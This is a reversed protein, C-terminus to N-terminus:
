KCSTAFTSWTGEVTRGLFAGPSGASDSYILYRVVDIGSFGDIRGYASMSYVNVNDEALSFQCLIIENLELQNLASFGPSTFGVTGSLSQVTNAETLSDYTIDATQMEIFSSHTGVDASGDVDSQGDLTDEKVGGGSVQLLVADINWTDQIADSTTFSGGFKITYTSSTLSVTFNNWQNATLDSTISTWSSGSWYTVNIDESGSFIGTKICLEETALFDVVNTFEVELDMQYGSSSPVGSWVGGISCSRTALGTWGVTLDGAPAGIYDAIAAGQSTVTPDIVDERNTIGGTVSTMATLGGTCGVAVILANDENTTVAFTTDGAAPTQHSGTDDPVEQEVGTYEAVFVIIERSIPENVTVTINYSGPLAPLNADLIYWGAVYSFFGSVSTNKGIQESLISVSNFTIATVDGTVEADEWAVGIVVLRNNGSASVLSYNFSHRSQGITSWSETSSVFSPPVRPISESLQDFTDDTNQLNVFATHAGYDGSGDVDSTQDVYDEILAGPTAGGTNEELIQDYNLGFDQMDSLVSHTGIDSPAHLDSTQDVFDEFNDGVGSLTNELHTWAHNPFPLSEYDTTPVFFGFGVLTSLFLIVLGERRM